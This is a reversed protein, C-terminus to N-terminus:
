ARQEGFAGDQTEKLFLELAAAQLVAIVNHALGGAGDYTTNANQRQKPRIM